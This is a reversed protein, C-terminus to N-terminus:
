EAPPAEVLFLGGDTGPPFSLAGRMAEYCARCLCRPYGVRKGQHVLLAHKFAFIGDM